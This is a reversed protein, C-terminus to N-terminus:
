EKYYESSNAPKMDTKGDGFFNYVTDVTEDISGHVFRGCSSINPIMIKGTSNNFKFRIITEKPTYDFRTIEAENFIAAEEAESSGIHLKYSKPTGIKKGEIVLWGLNPLYNPFHGVYLPIRDSSLGDINPGETLHLEIPM